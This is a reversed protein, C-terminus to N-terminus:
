ISEMDAWKMGTCRRKSNRISAAPGLCVALVIDTYATAPQRALQAPQIGSGRRLIRGSEGGGAEQVLTIPFRALYRRSKCDIQSGVLALQWFVVDGRVRRSERGANDAM